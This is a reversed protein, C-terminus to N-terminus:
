EVSDESDGLVKHYQVSYQLHLVESKWGCPVHCMGWSQAVQACMVKWGSTVMCSCQQYIDGHMM